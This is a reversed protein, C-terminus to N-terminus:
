FEVALELTGSDSDNGSGQNTGTGTHETGYDEDHAYEFALTTNRLIEMSVGALFREEPLGLDLAEDSEQYAIAFTTSRENIETTYGAEINWAYPQAPSGDFTIEGASFEDAAGTFEGILAFGGIGLIAHASVGPVYDQMQGVDWDATGDGDLDQDMGTFMDSNELSNIAAVEIEFTFGDGEHAVGLNGGFHEIEDESNMNNSEGNFVYFSGYWGAHEFGVLVATDYTEGIDLTMPDSIMNSPYVGFPLGMLGATMYIPYKDTNGITITASDVDLQTEGDDEYLLVIDSSVWENVTAHIDLEVTALVIDSGDDDNTTSYDGDANNTVSADVEVVGGISIHKSWHAPFMSEKASEVSAALDDTKQAISANSERNADIGKSADGVQSKLADLERQQKKILDWMESRSPLPGDSGQYDPVGAALGTASVGLVLSMCMTSLLTSKM